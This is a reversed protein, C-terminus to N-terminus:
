VVFILYSLGEACIAGLEYTKPTYVFTYDDCYRGMSCDAASRCVCDVFVCSTKLIERFVCREDVREQCFFCDSVTHCAVSEVQDKPDRIKSWMRIPRDDRM